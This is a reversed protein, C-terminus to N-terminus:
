VRYVERLKPHRGCSKAETCFPQEMDQECKPRMLGAVQPCVERVADRMAYYVDRIERQARSCMRERSAEILARANMTVYMQTECSNPLVMRADEPPLGLERLKQYWGRADDMAASYAASQVETLGHPSVASFGAEDCYRQSRVTYSAHRHRTQQALFARSAGTICFTFSIHEWVSFHGSRACAQAIAYTNTPKSDYCVSAAQEVVAAPNGGTIPQTYAILKVQM